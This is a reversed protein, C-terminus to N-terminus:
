SAQSLRQTFQPERGARIRGWTTSLQTLVVTRDRVNGLLERLQTLCFRTCKSSQESVVHLPQGGDGM